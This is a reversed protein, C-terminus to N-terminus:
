RVAFVAALFIFIQFIFLYAKLSERYLAEFRRRFYKDRIKTLVTFHTLVGVLSFISLFAVGGMYIEGWDPIWFLYLSFLLFAEGILLSNKEGIVIPTTRYNVARDGEIDIVMVTLERFLEFFFLAITFKLLVFPTLAGGNAAINGAVPIFAIAAAVQFNGIFHAKPKGWINYIYGSIENIVLLVFFLLSVFWAFILSVALTFGVYLWVESFTLDGRVLPKKDKKASYDLRDNDYDIIDNHACISKEFFLVSLVVLALCPINLETNQLASAFAACAVIGFSVLVGAPPRGIKIFAKLKELQM